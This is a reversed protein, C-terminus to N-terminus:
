LIHAIGVPVLEAKPFFILYLTGTYPRADRFVTRIRWDPRVPFRPTVDPNMDPPYMYVDDDEEENEEDDDDGDDFLHRYSGGMTGRLESRIEEINAAIKAKAKNKEVLLQRMEKKVELPVNPCKKSNSHRDTHSLHFKFRTIGGSKIAMGCFNCITDNRNGKIPTCYKWAPDRGGTNSGSGSHM